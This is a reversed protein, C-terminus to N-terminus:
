KYPSTGPRFTPEPSGKPVLWLQMEDDRQIGAYRTKIKSAPIGHERSLTTSTLQLARRVFRTRSQKGASAILYAQLNPDANVAMAFDRLRLGWDCPEVTEFGYGFEVGEKTISIIASSDFLTPEVIKAPRYAPPLEPTTVGDVSIWHDFRMSKGDPARYFKVRAPDFKRYIVHSQLNNFYKLFRGPISRDASGIVYGVSGPRQQLEVLLTDIRLRVDETCFSNETRDSLFLNSTYQGAVNLALALLLVVFASFRSRM